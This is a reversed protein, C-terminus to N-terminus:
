GSDTDMSGATQRRVGLSVAVTYDTDESISLTIGVLEREAALLAFRGALGVRPAGFPSAQIEIHQFSDGETWSTGLSKFVAEKATFIKAYARARDEGAEATAIETSTFVRSIFTEHSPGELIAAMRPVFMIDVGVGPASAHEHASM